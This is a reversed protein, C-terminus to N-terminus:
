EIGRDVVFGIAAIDRGKTFSPRKRPQAHRVRYRSQANKCAMRRCVACREISVGKIIEHIVGTIRKDHGRRCVSDM